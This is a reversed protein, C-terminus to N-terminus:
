FSFKGNISILSQLLRNKYEENGERKLHQKSELFIWEFRWANKKKSKRFYIFLYIPQTKQVNMEWDNQTQTFAWKGRLPAELLLDLDHNPLVGLMNRFIFVDQHPSFTSKLYDTFSQLDQALYIRTCRSQEELPNKIPQLSMTKKVRQLNEM